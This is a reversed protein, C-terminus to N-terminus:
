HPQHEDPRPAPRGGEPRAQPAAHPAEQPRPAPQPAPRPQQVEPRPQPAPRAQQIEPRPQPAPRPAEQPRAVPQPAPRPQQVERRPEPPRQAEQPRPAPAPQQVEPRLEPAPRPAEQPRAVPQPAPRPQQVEPRPEPPRQTEEPRAVPQPAPRQQFEPRAAQQRAPPEQVEPRAAPEPSPRGVPQPRAQTPAPAPINPHTHVSRQVVEPRQAEHPVAPNEPLPAREAGPRENPQLQARTTVPAPRAAARLAVAPPQPAPAKYQTALPRAAVLAAPAAHGAVAFQARSTSAERAHQIQAPVPATRPARLAALEQPTPRAPIGGHGGNYSIRVNTTHVPYDYVNHVVAPNVNTVARNYVFNGHNWYGGYYGHGTYGHGYDIGGYFGVYSGWYGTHWRYHGNDYGWFPPTWLAGVWPALVWAGPVWYYSSSQYGWYGPTWYYNNGPCPPQSYEPLPPPPQSAEVPQEYSVAESYDTQGGPTEYPPPPPPAYNESYETGQQATDYSPAAPEQPVSQQAPAPASAYQAPALNGGAPDPPPTPVFQAAQAPSHDAATEQTKNCGAALGAVFVVATVLYHQGNLNRSM